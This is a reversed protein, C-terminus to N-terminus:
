KHSDGTNFSDHDVSIAVNIGIALCLPALVVVPRDILSLLDFVTERAGTLSPRTTKDARGSRNTWFICPLMRGFNGLGRLLGM